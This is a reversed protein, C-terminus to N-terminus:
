RSNFKTFSTKIKRPVSRRCNEMGQLLIQCQQECKTVKTALDEILKAAREAPDKVLLGSKIFIGIKVFNANDSSMNQSTSLWDYDVKLRHFVLWSRVTILDAMAAEKEEAEIVTTSWFGFAVLEQSLYWQHRDLVDLTAWAVLKDTGQYRQM